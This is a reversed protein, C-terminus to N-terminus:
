VLTWVSGTPVTVTVGGNVTVPAASLGNSGVPISYDATITNSHTWIGETTENGGGSQLPNWVTGNYGEFNSTTTNFRFFGASPAGDRQATTGAPLEASGTISTEDVKSDLQTQIASTVGDVYNLEAATATVQTTGIYFSTTNLSGSVDLKYLPSTTGIGVNGNEDIRVAEVSDFGIVNTHFTLFTDRFPDFTGVTGIGTDTEYYLHLGSEPSTDYSAEGGQIRAQIDASGFSIFEANDLDQRLTNFQEKFQELSSDLSLTGATVSVM